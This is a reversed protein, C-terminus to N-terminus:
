IFNDDDDDLPIMDEPRLPTFGTKPASVPTVYSNNNKYLKQTNNVTYTNNDDTSISLIVKLRNVIGKLEEAQTSLRDASSSTEQASSANSQASSSIQRIAKTIEDLGKTQEQSAISVEEMLTTSTVVSENIQKLIKDVKETNKVGVSTKQLSNEIMSSTEKAAEASRQALNRVEDAVVAFGAGAEGARAAEVAANLALINTQFAIGDIVSIVKSIEESSNKIDGMAEVMQSMLLNAEEVVKKVETSLENAKVANDANRMTLSSLEDIASTTEEVTAAQQTSSSSLQQSTSLLERSAVSVNDSGSNLDVSIADLQTVTKNVIRYILVGIIAFFVFFILYSLFMLRNFKNELDDVYIGTGIVWGWKDFPIVYSLKSQPENSNPRNWSYYLSGGGQSAIKNGEVIIKVGKPDTLNSQDKGVLQPSLPHMLMYNKNDNIWFYGQEGDYRFQSITKMATQKAQEETFTGQEVREWNRKAVVLAMETLHKLEKENSEILVKKNNFLIFTTIIMSFLIIIAFLLYLKTSLKLNKFM